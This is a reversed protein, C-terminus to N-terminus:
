IQIKVFMSMKESVKGDEVIYAISGCCPTSGTWNKLCKKCVNCEVIFDEETSHWETVDFESPLLSLKEGNLLIASVAGYSNVYVHYEQDKKCIINAKELFPMDSTVTKALKVKLPVKSRFNAPYSSRDNAESQSILAPSTMAVELTKNSLNM